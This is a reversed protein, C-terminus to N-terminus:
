EYSVFERGREFSFFRTGQLKLVGKKGVVAKDFDLMPVAYRKKKGDETKLILYYAIEAKYGTRSPHYKSTRSQTQKDLVEVTHETIPSHNNESWRFVKKVAWIVAGVGVFIYVAYMFVNYFDM